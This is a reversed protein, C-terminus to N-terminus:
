AASQVTFLVNAGQMFHQPEWVRPISAQVCTHHCGYVLYPPRYVLITAGMCLTYLIGYLLYMYSPECVGLIHKSLLVSTSTQSSAEGNGLSHTFWHHQLFLDRARGVALDLTTCDKNRTFHIKVRGIALNFNVGDWDNSSCFLWTIHEEEKSFCIAPEALLWTCPLSGWIM